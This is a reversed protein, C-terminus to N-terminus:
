PTAELATIRNTLATIMAQQEQIAATLTAILFSADVSQALIEGEDNTADKEGFVAHHCVEALEHAIFGEGDSGDAKWQFTCPKLLAVKALAGTMPQVNDKLRYDSSTNYATTTGTVTIAGTQTGNRAFISINSADSGAANNNIGFPAITIGETVSFKFTSSAFTPSTCGTMVRGSSDIRMFETATTTNIFRAGASGSSFCLFDAGDKGIEYGSGSYSAVSNFSLAGAISVKQTPSSTGIGVNGGRPNLLLDYVAGLNTADTAQIWMQNTALGITGIGGAADSGTRLRILEGTSPTTGTTAPLAAVGSTTVQLKTVPSTTGIGVNGASTIRMRETLTGANSTAFTLRATEAGPTGNEVTSDIYSVKVTGYYQAINVGGGGSVSDAIGFFGYGNTPTMVALRGYSSAATTGIGVRDSSDIRMAENASTYFAIPNFANNDSNIGSLHAVSSISQVRLGAAASTSGSLQIPGGVVALRAGSASSTTGINVRSNSDIRMAEEGGEAFAITDAAPFFMGTNTDTTPAVSPAAASGASISATGAPGVPGQLTGSATVSVGVGTLVAVTPSVFIVSCIGRSNLTFSGAVSTSANYLTLGAAQIINIVAASNNFISVTGGSAFVSAPINVSGTASIVTGLDTLVLTYTATQTNIPLTKLELFSANLDAANLVEGQVYTKGM